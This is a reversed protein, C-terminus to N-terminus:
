LKGLEIYRQVKEMPIFQGTNMNYVWSFHNNPLSSRWTHGGCFDTKGKEDKFPTFEYFGAGVTNMRYIGGGNLAYNRVKNRMSATLEIEEEGFRLM